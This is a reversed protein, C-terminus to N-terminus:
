GPARSGAHALRGADHSCVRGHSDRPGKQRQWPYYVPENAPCSRPKISFRARLLGHHVLKKQRFTNLTYIFVLIAHSNKYGDSESNMLNIGFTVSILSTNEFDCIM